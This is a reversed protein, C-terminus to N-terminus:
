FKAMGGNEIILSANVAAIQTLKEVSGAIAM